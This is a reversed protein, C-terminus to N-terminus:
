GSQGARWARAAAPDHSINWGNFGAADHPPDSDFYTVFTPAPQATALYHSMATLM